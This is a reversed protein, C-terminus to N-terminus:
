QFVDMIKTEAVSEIEYDAVTGKMGSEFNDYAQRFSSALVLIYSVTRKESATKEDITIFNVKVKYWRDGSEDWFIESIKTKGVNTINFDSGIYPNLEQTVRAEAETCSLANALYPECVNKITGNEQKKGYRVRVEIWIAMKNM